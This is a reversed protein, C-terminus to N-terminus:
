SIVHDINIKYKKFHKKLEDNMIDYVDDKHEKLCLIDDHITLFPLNRNHLRKWIGMMVQVESYQLLWALNTHTEKKHPNQQETRSKYENIWEVWKTDGNFMRGIDNMPKGFILKFLLKKAEDRTKVTRNNRKLLEYVDEGNFIADSFPNNGISTNLVKALITPQMQKVDLSIVPKGYFTIKGRLNHKLNVVPTHVRHSFADVTFFADLDKDRHELFAKFYVPMDEDEINLEVHKLQAKMYEHTPSLPMKKKEQKKTLSLLKFDIPGKGLVKFNDRMDYDIQGLEKLHKLQFGWGDRHGRLFHKLEYQYIKVTGYDNLDKLRHKHLTKTRIYTTLPHEDMEIKKHLEYIM